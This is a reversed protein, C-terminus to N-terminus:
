PLLTVRMNRHSTRDTCASVATTWAARCPQRPCPIWTPIPLTFTTCKNDGITQKNERAIGELLAKQKKAQSCQAWWTRRLLSHSTSCSMNHSFVHKHLQRWIYPNTRQCSTSVEKRKGGMMSTTWQARQGENLTLLCAWTTGIPHENPDLIEVTRYYLAAAALVENKILM